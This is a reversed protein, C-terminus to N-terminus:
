AGVVISGSNLDIASEGLPLDVVFNAGAQVVLQRDDVHKVRGQITKPRGMIPAIFNGGSPVSYVKRASALLRADIPENLPGDYGSSELHLEYNTGTPRFVVYGDRTGIVQGRTAFNSDTM